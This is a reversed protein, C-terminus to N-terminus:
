TLCDCVHFLHSALDSSSVLYRKLPFIKPSHHFYFQKVDEASYIPRNDDGTVVLLTTLLGGTSTGAIM